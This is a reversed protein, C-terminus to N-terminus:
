HGYAELVANFACNLFSFLFCLMVLFLKVSQETLILELIQEMDTSNDIQDATCLQLHTM